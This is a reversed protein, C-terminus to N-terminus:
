GSAPVLILIVTGTKANGANAVVLDLTDTTLLIPSPDCVKWNSVDSPSNSLNAGAGGLLDVGNADVLTVDYQDTPQTASGNPIFRAQRLRGPAVIAYANGSVAGGATSVWAITYIDIRQNGLGVKSWTATGAM